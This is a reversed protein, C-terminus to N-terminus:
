EQLRNLAEKGKRVITCDNTSTPHELRADAMEEMERTVVEEIDELDPVDEPVQTLDTRSRKKVPEGHEKENWAAQQGGLGALSQGAKEVEVARQAPQGVNVAQRGVKEREGQVGASPEPVSFSDAELEAMLAIADRSEKAEREQDEQGKVLNWIEELRTLIPGGIAFDFRQAQPLMSAVEETRGMLKELTVLVFELLEGLVVVGEFNDVKGSTMVQNAFDRLRAGGGATEGWGSSPDSLSKTVM